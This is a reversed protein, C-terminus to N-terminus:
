YGRYTRGVSTVVVSDSAGQRTARIVAFDARRLLGRASFTLTGSGPSLQVGAFEDTLRVRKILRPNLASTDITVRYVTPSDIRVSVPWGERVAYMRALAIDSTLNDVAARTRNRTMAERVSPAAVSVGIAVMMLVVLLEVLTYGGERTRVATSPPNM